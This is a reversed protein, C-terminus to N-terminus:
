AESFCALIVVARRFGSCAHTHTRSVNTSYPPNEQRTRFLIRVRNNRDQLSKPDRGWFWWTRRARRAPLTSAVHQRLPLPTARRDSPTAFRRAPKLALHWDQERPQCGLPASTTSPRPCPPRTPTLPRPVAPRDFNLDDLSAPFTCRARLHQSICLVESLRLAM